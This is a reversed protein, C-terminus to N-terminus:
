FGSHGVINMISCLYPCHCQDLLSEPVSWLITLWGVNVSCLTITIRDALNYLVTDHNYKKTVYNYTEVM